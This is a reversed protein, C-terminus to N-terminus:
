LKRTRPYLRAIKYRKFSRRTGNGQHSFHYTVAL